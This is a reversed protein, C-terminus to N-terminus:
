WSCTPPAGGAFSTTLRALLDAQTAVPALTVEVLAIVTAGIAALLLSM